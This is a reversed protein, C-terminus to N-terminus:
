FDNDDCSEDIRRNRNMGDDFNRSLAFSEDCSAIEFYSFCYEDLFREDPDLPGVERGVKPVSNALDLVLKRLYRRLITSCVVSERDGRGTTL